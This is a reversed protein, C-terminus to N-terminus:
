VKPSAWAQPEMPADDYQRTWEHVFSRQHLQGPSWRGWIGGVAAHTRDTWHLSAPDSVRRVVQRIESGSLVYGAWVGPYDKTSSVETIVASGQRRMRNRHTHGASFFLDPNAELLSDVFPTGDLYRVGLPWFWPVARDEFHHHTFVMSPRDIDVADRIEDHWRGIRGWSHGPVTSDVAVIRFGDIDRTTVPEPFLSRRQLEVTADLSGMQGLVDHNGPIAMIPIPVGALLEDFMEWEEPRSYCTIDGKIVLLEAGWAVADRVASQACRLPYPDAGHDRIQKVLGFGTEGFHLDSITAIKTTSTSAAPLTRVATRATVRGDLLVDVANTTGPRLGRLDAAGPGGIVGLDQEQDDVLATLHGGPLRRWTLQAADDEVAFV